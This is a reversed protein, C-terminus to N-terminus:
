PRTYNVGDVIGNTIIKGPQMGSLYTSGGAKLEKKGNPLIVKGSWVIGDQYILSKSPGKLFYGGQGNGQSPDTAGKGDNMFWYDFNNIDIHQSSNNTNIKEIKNTKQGFVLNPLLLLVVVQLAITISKM